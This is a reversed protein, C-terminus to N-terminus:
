EAHRREKLAAIKLKKRLKRENADCLHCYACNVGHKCGGVSHLFGCPKCAGLSHGASGVSPLNSLGITDSQMASESDAFSQRLAPINAGMGEGIETELLADVSLTGVPVEQELLSDTDSGDSLVTPPEPASDDHFRSCLKSRFACPPASCVALDVAADEELELFTKRIRLIFPAPCKLVNSAASSRLSGTDFEESSWDGPEETSAESLISV